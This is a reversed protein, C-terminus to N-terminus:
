EAGGLFAAVGRALLGAIRARNEEGDLRRADEENTAFGVEVLV